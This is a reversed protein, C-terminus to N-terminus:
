LGETVPELGTTAMKYGLDDIVFSPKNKIEFKLGSAAEFGDGTAVGEACIEAICGVNGVLEVLVLGDVVMGIVLAGSLNAGFTVCRDCDM